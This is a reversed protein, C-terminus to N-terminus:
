LEQRESSGGMGLCGSIQKRDKYILETYISNDPIYDKFRQLRLSLMNM